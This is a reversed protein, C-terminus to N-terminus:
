GVTELGDWLRKGAMESGNEVREPGLRAFWPQMCTRRPNTCSPCIIRDLFRGVGRQGVWYVGLVARYWQITRTPSDQHDDEPRLHPRMAHRWKHGM